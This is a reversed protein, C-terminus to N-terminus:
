DIPRALQRWALTSHRQRRCRRSATDNLILAISFRKRPVEFSVDPALIM